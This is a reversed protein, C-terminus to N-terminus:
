TRTERVLTRIRMATVSNNNATWEKPIAFGGFEVRCVLICSTCDIKKNHFLKRISQRFCDKGELDDDSLAHVNRSVQTIYDIDDSQNTGLQEEEGIASITIGRGPAVTTDYDDIGIENFLDNEDLDAEMIAQICEMIEEHRCTM